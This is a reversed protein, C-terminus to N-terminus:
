KRLVAVDLMEHVARATNINVTPVNHLTLESAVMQWFALRRLPETELPFANRITTWYASALCAQTLPAM